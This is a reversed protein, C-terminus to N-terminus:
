AQWCREEEVTFGRPGLRAAGDEIMGPPAGSSM